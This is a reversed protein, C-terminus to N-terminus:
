VKRVIFGVMNKRVFFLSIAKKITTVHMCTYIYVYIGM